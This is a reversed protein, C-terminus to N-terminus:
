DHLPRNDDELYLKLCASDGRELKPNAVVWKKFPFGGEIRYKGPLVNISFSGSDTQHMVGNVVVTAPIIRSRSEYDSFRGAIVTHSPNKAKIKELSYDGGTLSKKLLSDSACATSLFSISILIATRLNMKTGHDKNNMYRVTTM